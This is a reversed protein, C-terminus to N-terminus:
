VWFVYKVVSRIFCHSKEKCDRRLYPDLVLQHTSVVALADCKLAIWLSKGAGYVVPGSVLSFYYRLTRWSEALIRWWTYVCFKAPWQFPYNDWDISWRCRIRQSARDVLLVHLPLFLKQQKNTLCPRKTAKYEILVTRMWWVISDIMHLCNVQQQLLYEHWLAYFLSCYNIDQFIRKM